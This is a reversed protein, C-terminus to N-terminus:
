TSVLIIRAGHGPASGIGADCTLLPCDLVEALAVCAADYATLNDRLSWMRPVLESASRREIPLRSLLSIAASARSATMHGSRTLRRLAQVVEVDILDPAEFRGDRDEAMRSAVTEGRANGLLLEVVASADLVM